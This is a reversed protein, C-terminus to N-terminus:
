SFFGRKEERERVKGTALFEEIEQASELLETTEWSEENQRQLQLAHHVANIRLEEKRTFGVELEKEM